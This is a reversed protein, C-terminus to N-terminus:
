GALGLVGAVTDLTAAKDAIVVWRNRGGEGPVVQAVGGAKAIATTAATEFAAADADTDWATHWAIAWAGDPGEIVAMRDGGWGAAAEDADAQDVGSERLWIGMQLEGFTDQLPISWGAGLTNALNAPLQVEVPREDNTYAEPHLIQETSVPMKTYFADVAEWGGSMQASLAYFAGTTYPYLLTERMIAPLADIVAQSAPDVETAEAIEEATLNAQLWYTMLLTADGEYVGQRALFWDSQDLIGEQDAFVTFHEDQLAHTFEHAYTVKDAATLADARSVVYMKKQDPRYFGAVGAALMELTTARLDMDQPILGLAKYIRENAAVYAPPSDKDYQETALQLLRAEDIIERDLAVTSELGRIDAVQREIADLIADTDASPTSSPAASATASPSVSPAASATVSPSASPTTSGCAAVVISLALLATLGVLSRPRRPDDM